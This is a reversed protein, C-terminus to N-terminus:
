LDPLINLTLRIPTFGAHLPYIQGTVCKASIYIYVVYSM